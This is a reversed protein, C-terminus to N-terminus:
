PFAPFHLELAAARRGVAATSITTGHQTGANPFKQSLVEHLGQPHGAGARQRQVHRVLFRHAAGPVCLVGAAVFRIHHRIVGRRDAGPHGRRKQPHPLDFQEGSPHPGVGMGFRHLFQGQDNLVQDIAVVAILDIRRQREGLLHHLKRPQESMSEGGQHGLPHPHPVALAVEVAVVARGAAVGQIVSGEAEAFQEVRAKLGPGTAALM